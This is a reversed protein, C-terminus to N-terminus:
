ATGGRMEAAPIRTTAGCGPNLIVNMGHPISAALEDWSVERHAQDPLSEQLRQLTTFAWVGEGQEEEVVFLDGAGSDLIHFTASWLARRLEDELAWGTGVRQQLDEVEDLPQPLGLAAPTPRYKPNAWWEDTLEGRDDVRYGGVVGEPPVRGNPDFGPDIVYLWGGALHRASRRMEDTVPPPQKHSTPGRM